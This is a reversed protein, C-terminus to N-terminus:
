VQRSLRRLHFVVSIGLSGDAIDAKAALHRKVSCTRREAHRHTVPDGREASINAIFRLGCLRYGTLMM